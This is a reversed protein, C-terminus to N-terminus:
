RGEKSFDRILSDIRSDFRKMGRRLGKDIWGRRPKVKIFAPIFGLKDSAWQELPENGAVPVFHERMSDLYIGYDRMIISTENKSIKKSRISSVLVGHWFFGQALAENKLGKKIDNSIHIRFRELEKPIRTVLGTVYREARDIGVVEINTQIM